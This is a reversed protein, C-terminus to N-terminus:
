PNYYPHPFSHHTEAANLDNEDYSQKMRHSVLVCLWMQIGFQQQCVFEHSFLQMCM